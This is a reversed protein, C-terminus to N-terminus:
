GFIVTTRKKIIAIIDDYVESKTFGDANLEDHLSESHVCPHRAGLTSKRLRLDM